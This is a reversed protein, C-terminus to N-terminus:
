HSKIKLPGSAGQNKKPTCKRDSVYEPRASIEIIKFTDQLNIKNKSSSTLSSELYSFFRREKRGGTLFKGQM